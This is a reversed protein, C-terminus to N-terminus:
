RFALLRGRDTLVYITGDAVVPPLFVPDDLEIEGGVAGSQPDLWALRGTSGTVWLRDSALVPGFWRVDGRRSKMRRFQPLQTVWRVRGDGRAVAVLQGDVTLAFVWDGAVWPTSVGAFNREWVRQGSPLDLAVMRGGHGIAFVRDRDIVPSADIDALSQIATARATRALSDQWVTRGNSALVANLEGSSFGAVVTGQAVTPTAVGLLGAVEVTGAIDWVREGTQANLCFLQNDQSLVFVRGLAIAPAGRLPVGLETQWLQRGTEPDFATVVGYGSTAVARGEGVSIGGGFAVTGGQRQRAVPARWLQRGTAADLAIAMAQSDVALVRGDAVVPPAALRARASSGAGISASWALSPATPAELHGTGRDAAGGPQAYNPNRVVPPLALPLGALAPDAEIGTDFVLVPLRDGVTPTKGKGRKLVNCGSLALSAALLAVLPWAVRM